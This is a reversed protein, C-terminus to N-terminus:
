ITPDGDSEDDDEGFSMFTRRGGEEQIEKEDQQYDISRELRAFKNPKEEKMVSMDQLAHNTEDKDCIELSEYYSLDKIFEIPIKNTESTNLTTGKRKTSRNKLVERANINELKGARMQDFQPAPPHASFDNLPRTLNWEPPARTTLSISSALGITVSCPTLKLDHINKLEVRHDFLFNSLKERRGLLDTSKASIQSM